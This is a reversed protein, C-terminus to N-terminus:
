DPDGVITQWFLCNPDGATRTCGEGALADLTKVVIERAIGADTRITVLSSGPHKAKIDRAIQTLGAFDWRTPDHPPKTPDAPLQSTQGRRTVTFGERTIVVTLDVADRLEAQMADVAWFRAYTAAIARIRPDGPDIDLDLALKRALFEAAAAIAASVDPSRLPDLSNCLAPAPSLRGCYTRTCLLALQQVGERAADQVATLADGPDDTCHFVEAACLDPGTALAAIRTRADGGLVQEAAEACEALRDIPGPTATGSGCALAFVAPLLRRMPALM